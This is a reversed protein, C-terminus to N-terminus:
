LIVLYKRSLILHNGGFVLDRHPERGHLLFESPALKVLGEILDSDFRVRNGSVDAGADALQKKAQDDLFDIGTTALVELSALHIAELEDDSVARLPEFRMQPQEWDPQEQVPDRTKSRTSRAGRKSM